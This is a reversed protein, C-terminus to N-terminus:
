IFTVVFFVSIVFFSHPADLTHCIRASMVGAEWREQQIENQTRQTTVGEQGM